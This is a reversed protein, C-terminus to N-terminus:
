PRNAVQIHPGPSKDFRFPDNFSHSSVWLTESCSHKMIPEEWNQTALLNLPRLQDPHVVRCLLMIAGNDCSDTGWCLDARCRCIRAKRAAVPFYHSLHEKDRLEGQGLMYAGRTGFHGGVCFQSSGSVSMIEPGHQFRCPRCSPNQSVRAYKHVNGM